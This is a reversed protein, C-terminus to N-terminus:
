VLANQVGIGFGTNGLWPLGMNMAAPVGNSGSAGAGYYTVSGLPLGGHYWSATTADTSFHTQLLGAV